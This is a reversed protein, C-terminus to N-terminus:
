AEEKREDDGDDTIPKRWMGLVRGCVECPHSAHPKGWCHRCFRLEGHPTELSIYPEVPLGTYESKSM